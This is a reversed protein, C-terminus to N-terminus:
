TVLYARVCKEFLLYVEATLSLLRASRIMTKTTRLICKENRWHRLLMSESVFLM